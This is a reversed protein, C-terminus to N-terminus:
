DTGSTAHQRRLRVRASGLQKFAAAAHFVEFTDPQCLILERRHQGGIRDWACLEITQHRSVPMYFKMLISM